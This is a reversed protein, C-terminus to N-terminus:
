NSVSYYRAIFESFESDNEKKTINGDKTDFHIIDEVYVTDVDSLSNETFLSDGLFYNNGDVDVYDLITPAIDISTRGKVDISRPKVGKHYIYLPIQDLFYHVRYHSYKGNFTNVYDNDVYTCHDSTFVIITNNYLSSDIFKELFLGFHYDANYFSNLLINNKNRFKKDTSDFTVHTDFTYISLFFPQKNSNLKTAEDFLTEYAEKDHIINAKSDYKGNVLKDFHLDNLFETFDENEPEVNIFETFYGNDRLIDQISVLNNRDLNSNHFGSFLQGALGRYTAATHNYYNDFSISNRSLKKVNPMINRSDFIIHKSLGETFIVIINPKAGLSSDYSIYDSVHQKYFEDKSANINKIKNQFSAYQVSNKILKYYNFTVSFQGTFNFLFVLYFCFLILLKLLINRTKDKVQNPFILSFAIVILSTSIYVLAKGSIRNLEGLNTMMILSVYSSAFIYVITNINYLLLSVINFLVSLKRYKIGVLVTIFYIISLELIGFIVFLPNRYFISCYICLVISFLYKINYIKLFSKFDIKKNRLIYFIFVIFFTSVMVFRKFSFVENFFLYKEMLFSVLLVPITVLLYIYLNKKLHKIM